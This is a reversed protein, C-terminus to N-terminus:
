DEYHRRLDRVEEGILPEDALRKVAEQHRESAARSREPLDGSPYGRAITTWWANMLMIFELGREAAEQTRYLWEAPGLLLGLQGKQASSLLFGRDTRMIRYRHDTDSEARVVEAM